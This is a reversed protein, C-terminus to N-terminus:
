LSSAITGSPNPPVDFTTLSKIFTGKAFSGGIGFGDFEVGNYLLESIFKASEKRLDEHRGGQIIGFLAQKSFAETNEVHTKLSELAWRHTRDLSRKQYEVPEHPSTCEDFAFIIDAGINQQIEISKKPTFYHASGDIISRFMVGEEDVKAPVLANETEVKHGSGKLSIEDYGPRASSTFKTINKGLAVGLSFAQFGGSDTWTPGNYNMFRGLGGHAKIIEDGPQLYLHYTNSLISEAGLDKVMEPTIGKVTAKTGVPIFAPTNIVGHPTEIIGVRANSKQSRTKISFTIPRNQM